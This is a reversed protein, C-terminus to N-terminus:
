LPRYTSLSLEITARIQAGAGASDFAERIRAFEEPSPPYRRNKWEAHVYTEMENVSDWYFHFPFTRREGEAVFVGAEVVRQVAEDSAVDDPLGPSGDVSHILRVEDGCVIEIPADVAVPRLDLLLGSPRLVRHTERLADVM